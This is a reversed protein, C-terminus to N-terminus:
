DRITAYYSSCFIPVNSVHSAFSRYCASHAPGCALLLLLFTVPHKLPLAWSLGPSQHFTDQITAARQSQRGPAQSDNTRFPVPSAARSVSTKWGCLSYLGPLPLSFTREGARGGGQESIRGVCPFPLDAATDVLDEASTSLGARSDIFGSPSPWCTMEGLGWVARVYSTGSWGREALPQVVGWSTKPVQMCTDARMFCCGKRGLSLLASVVRLLEELRSGQRWAM